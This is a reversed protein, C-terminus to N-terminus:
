ILMQSLISKNNNIKNNTKNNSKNNIKNNTQNNTKNNIKNNTKNNIKNNIKNNTQTNTKNTQNIKNTNITSRNPTINRQLFSKLTNNANQRSVKQFEKVRNRVGIREETMEDTEPMVDLPEDLMNKDDNELIRNLNKIFDEDDNLKLVLNNIYAIREERPVNFSNNVSVIYNYLKKVVGRATQKNMNSKIKLKDINNYLKKKNTELETTEKIRDALSFLPAEKGESRMNKLDNKIDEFVQNKNNKITNNKITNNRNNKVMTNPASEKFKQFGSFAKNIETVVTNYNANRDKKIKLLKGILDHLQNRVKQSDRNKSTNTNLEKKFENVVNKLRNDRHNNNSKNDSKNNVRNNTNSKNINNTNSKNTNNQNSNNSYKKLIDNLESEATKNLQSIQETESSMNYLINIYKKHNTIDIM